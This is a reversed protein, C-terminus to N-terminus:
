RGTVFLPHEVRDGAHLGLRKATGANVELVALVDQGPGLPELSGPVTYQVIAVVQGGGNIFLMDLPLLTNKMWMAVAQPRGFNFLMGADPALAKRFMLGQALQEPTAAVEVTFTHHAGAATVVDLTSREFSVPQAVALVSASLFILMAVLMRRILM